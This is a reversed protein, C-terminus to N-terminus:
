GTGLVARNLNPIGFSCLTEKNQLTVLIGTLIIPRRYSSDNKHDRTTILTASLGLPLCNQVPDPSQLARMQLKSGLYCLFTLLTFVAFM